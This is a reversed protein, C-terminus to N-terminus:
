FPNPQKWTSPNKKSLTVKRSKTVAIYSFGNESVIFFFIPHVGSFYLLAGLTKVAMYLLLLLM